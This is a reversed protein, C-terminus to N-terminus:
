RSIKSEGDVKVVRYIQDAFSELEREHSVIIVQPNAIEDLIERVKGLQEKSFGDTPEDLILSSPGGEAFKQVMQSLALRYALAVSTREGGSLFDVDQEYGEQDVIPTFDEDVRSEKTADDVLSTFWKQFNYGFERNISAMVHREISELTPVFYEELWIERDRLETAKTAAREKRAVTESNRKLTAKWNRADARLDTMKEKIKDLEEHSGEIRRKLPELNVTERELVLIRGELERLRRESGELSTRQVDLKEKKRVAKLRDAEVRAREARTAEAADDYDRRGELAEDAEGLEKRLSELHESNQDREKSLGKARDAFEEPDADRECVPCRGNQAVSEIQGIRTGIGADVAEHKRIRERLAKIKAKLQEQSEAPPSGLGAAKKEAFSSAQGMEELEAALEKCERRDRAIQGELNVRETRASALRLEVEHLEDKESELQRLMETKERESRELKVLEAEARDVRGELEVNEAKLAAIERSSVELRTRKDRLERLLANGNEMAQKYEEAGFARSLIQVRLEPRLAILHKM